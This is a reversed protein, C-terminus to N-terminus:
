GAKRILKRCRHHLYHVFIWFRKYEPNKTQGKYYRAYIQQVIVSLRFLGYVEYFALGDPKIGMAECYYAIVEKRTMMGPLTTPQRRTARALRDDGSEV